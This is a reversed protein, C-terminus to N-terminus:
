NLFSDAMNAAVEAVAVEVVAVAMSNSVGILETANCEFAPCSSSNFDFTKELFFSISLELLSQLM